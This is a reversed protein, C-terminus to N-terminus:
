TTLGQFTGAKSEIFNGQVVVLWQVVSVKHGKLICLLPPRAISSVLLHTEQLLRERHGDPTDTAGTQPIHKLSCLLYLSQCVAVVLTPPLHLHPPIVLSLPALPLLYVGVLAEEHWAVECIDCGMEGPAYQM